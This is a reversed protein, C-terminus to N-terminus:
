LKKIMQVHRIAYDKGLYFQQAKINTGFVEDLRSFECSEKKMYEEALNLLHTGINQNRYTGDVYLNLITGHKNPRHYLLEPGKTDKVIFGIFGIVINNDVAVIVKGKNKKIKKEMDILCEKALKPTNICIKQADLEVYLDCFDDFLEIIRSKDSPLM